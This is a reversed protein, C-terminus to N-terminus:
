PCIFDGGPACLDLATAAASSTNLVWGLALRAQLVSPPRGLECGVTRNTLLDVVSARQAAAGKTTLQGRGNAAFTVRKRPARVGM